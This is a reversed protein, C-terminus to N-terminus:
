NPASNFAVRWLAIAFLPPALRFTHAHLPFIETLKRTLRCFGWNAIKNKCSALRVAFKRNQLPKANSSPAKSRLYNELPFTQTFYMCFIYALDLLIYTFQTYFNKGRWGTKWLWGYFPKGFYSWLWEFHGGSHQGDSCHPYFQLTFAGKAKLWSCFNKKMYFKPPPTVAPKWGITSIAKGNDGSGVKVTLTWDLWLGWIPPLKPWYSSCTTM